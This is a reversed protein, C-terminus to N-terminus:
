SALIFYIIKDLFLRERSEASSSHVVVIFVLEARAFCVYGNM